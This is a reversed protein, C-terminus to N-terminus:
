DFNENSQNQSGDDTDGCTGLSKRENFPPNSRDSRNEDIKDLHHNNRYYKCRKDNAHCAEAICLSKATDADIHGPTPWAVIDVEGEAFRKVLEMSDRYVEVRLRVGLSDAFRQCILFQTGLHHGHYDYYTQPGNVTAMILEGYQQIEHLDFNDSVEVSDLVQGWPTVVREQKKEFCSSLLLAAFLLLYPCHNRTM